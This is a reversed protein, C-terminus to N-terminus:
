QKSFDWTKGARKRSLSISLSKKQKREERLNFSLKEKRLGANHRWVRDENIFFNIEGGPSPPLAHNRLVAVGL